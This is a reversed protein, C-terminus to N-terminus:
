IMEIVEDGPAAVQILDNVGGVNGGEIFQRQNESGYVFGDVHMGAEQIRAQLNKQKESLKLDRAGVLALVASGYTIFKM